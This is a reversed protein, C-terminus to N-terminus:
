LIFDYNMISPIIFFSDKEEQEFIITLESNAISRAITKQTLGFVNLNKQIERINLGKVYLRFIKIDVDTHMIVDNIYSSSRLGSDM